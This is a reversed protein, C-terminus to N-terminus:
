SVEILELQTKTYYSGGPMEFQRTSMYPIVSTAPITLNGDDVEFEVAMNQAIISNMIARAEAESMYDWELMFKEKRHAIDRGMRGSLTVIDTKIFITERSMRAPRPLRFHDSGGVIIRWDRNNSLASPHGRFLLLM